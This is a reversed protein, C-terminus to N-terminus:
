YYYDKTKRVHFPGGSTLSPLRFLPNMRYETNVTLLTYSKDLDFNFEGRHEYKNEMYIINRLRNMFTTPNSRLMLLLIGHEAYKMKFIGKKYPNDKKDGHLEESSGGGPAPLAPLNGNGNAIIEEMTEQLDRGMSEGMGVIDKIDVILADIGSPTLYLTKKFLYEYGNNVLVFTDLLPEFIFILVYPVWFLPGCAAGMAKVEKNTIIPVADLALRFMYNDYFAAAQNEIENNGGVLMYELEAGKFLPNPVASGGMGGNGFDNLTGM